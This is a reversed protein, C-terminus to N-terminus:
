TAGNNGVEALMERGWGASRAQAYHDIAYTDAVNNKWQRWEILHSGAVPTFHHRLSVAGAAAEIIWEKVVVGNDVLNIGLKGSTGIVRTDLGVHLLAGLSEVRFSFGPLATASGSGVGSPASITSAGPRVYSHNLGHARPRRDRVGTTSVGTDTVAIDALGLSGAPVAAAGTRTDLDRTPAGAAGALLSVVGASSVVAQDLRQQGAAAATVNLDTQAWSARVLVGAATPVLASGAAIRVVSASQRSPAGGKLTGQQVAGDARTDSLDNISTRYATAPDSTLIRDPM